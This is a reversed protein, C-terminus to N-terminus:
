GERHATYGKREMCQRLVDQDVRGSRSVGLTYPRHAERRCAQLDQDLRAPTVGAKNFTWPQSACGAGLGLALLLWATSFGPGGRTPAATLPV